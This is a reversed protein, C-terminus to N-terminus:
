LNMPLQLEKFYLNLFQLWEMGVSLSVATVHGNFEAFKVWLIPSIFVTKTNSQTQAAWYAEFKM